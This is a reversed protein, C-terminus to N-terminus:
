KGSKVADLRVRVVDFVAGLVAREPPTVYNAKMLDAIANRLARLESAVADRAEESGKFPPFM